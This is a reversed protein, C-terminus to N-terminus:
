IPTTGSNKELEKAEQPSLGNLAACADYLMKVTSAGWQGLGAAEGPEFVKQGSEDVMCLCILEADKNRTNVHTNKGTGKILSQQWEGMEEGTLEQLRVAGGLGPVYVDVTKRKLGQAAKLIASRDLLAM